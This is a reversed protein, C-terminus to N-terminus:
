KYSKLLFYVHARHLRLGTSQARATSMWPKRQDSEVGENRFDSLESCLPFSMIDAGLFMSPWRMWQSGEVLGCMDCAGYCKLTM